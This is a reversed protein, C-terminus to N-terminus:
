QRCAPWAPGSRAAFVKCVVQRSHPPRGPSLALLGASRLFLLTPSCLSLPRDGRAYAIRWLCLVIVELM